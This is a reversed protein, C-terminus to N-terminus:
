SAAAPPDGVNFLHAQEVLFRDLKKPAQGGIREITDSV